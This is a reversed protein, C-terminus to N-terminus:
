DDTQPHFTTSFRLKTGLAHQLSLWFRSTFRLDRDSLISYPVGYLTVIERIYIEALKELSYSVKIPLFHASKTLRDMIVWVVDYGQQTKPLGIMFDM